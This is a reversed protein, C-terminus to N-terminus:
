PIISIGSSVFSAQRVLAQRNWPFPTRLYPACNGPRYLGLPYQCENPPHLAMQYPLLATRILFNAASRVPQRIPGKTHGYRELQIDEFYLPKHCLNSAYWTVTSPVFSREVIGAGDLGCEAPLDILSLAYQRDQRSLKHLDIPRIAGDTEQVNIVMSSGSVARGETIDQGNVDKWVRQGTVNREASALPVYLDLSVTKLSNAKLRKRLDDCSPSGPLQSSNDQVNPLQASEPRAAPLGSEQDQYGDLSLPQNSAAFGQSRGVRSSAAKLRVGAPSKVAIAPRTVPRRRPQGAWQSNPNSPPAVRRDLDGFAAQPQTTASPAQLVPNSKTQVNAGFNTGSLQSPANPNGLAPPNSFNNTPLSPQANQVPRGTLEPAPSVRGILNPTMGNQQVEQRYGVQKVAAGGTTYHRSDVNRKGSFGELELEMDDSRLRKPVQNTKPTSTKPTVSPASNTSGSQLPRPTQRFLGNPSSTPVQTASRDTSSTQEVSIIPSALLNNKTGHNGVPRHVQEQKISSTRATPLPAPTNKFPNTAQGIAPPIASAFNSGAPIRQPSVQASSRIPATSGAPIYATSPENELVSVPRTAPLQGPVHNAVAQNVQGAVNGPLIGPQSGGLQTGGANRVIRPASNVVENQFSQSYDVQQQVQPSRQPGQNVAVQQRYLPQRGAHQNQATQVQQLQQNTQAVGQRYGGNQAWAQRRQNEIRNWLAANAQMKILEHQRQARFQENRAGLAHAPLSNRRQYAAVVQRAYADAQSSNYGSAAARDYAQRYVSDLSVQAPSKQNQVAPRTGAQQQRYHGNQSYRVPQQNQQTALLGSRQNQGSVSPRAIAGTGVAQVSSGEASSPGFFSNLPLCAGLGFCLLSIKSKKFFTHGM